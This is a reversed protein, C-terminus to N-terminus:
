CGPRRRGRPGRRHVVQAPGVGLRQAQEGVQGRAQLVQRDGDERRRRRPSPERGVQGAQDRGGSVVTSRGAGSLMAAVAVSHSCRSLVTASSKAAAQRSAVPPFGNKRSASRRSARSCLSDTWSGRPPGPGAAPGQRPRGPPAGAGRPTGGGRGEHARDRHQAVAGPQVLGRAQGLSEPPRPPVRRPGAPRDPSGSAPPPGDLERSRAPPRTRPCPSGRVRGPARARRASIRAALPADSSRIAAWIASARGLPSGSWPRSGAAPPRPHEPARLAPQGGHGEQPPRQGLGAAVPRHPPARRARSPPTGGRPAPPPRGSRRPPGASRSGVSRAVAARQSAARQGHGPSESRATSCSSDAISTTSGASRSSASSSPGLERFSRGPPRGRSARGPPLRSSRYAPREPAVGPSRRTSALRAKSRALALPDAPVAAAWM